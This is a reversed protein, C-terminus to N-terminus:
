YPYVPSGCALWADFAWQLGFTMITAFVAISYMTVSMLRRRWGAHQFFYILGAFIIGIFQTLKFIFGLGAFFGSLGCIIKHSSGSTIHTTGLVSLAVAWIALTMSLGDNSTQALTKWWLTGTLALVCVGIRILTGQIGQEPYISWAIIWCAPACLAALAALVQFILNGSWGADLMAVLPAYGMPFQCSMSGVAFYDHHLRSGNLAQRGLYVHHNFADWTVAGGQWSVWFVAALIFSFSFLGFEIVPFKSKEM